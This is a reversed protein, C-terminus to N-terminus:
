WGLKNEAALEALTQLFRRDLDWLRVHQADM